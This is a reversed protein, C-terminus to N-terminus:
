WKSVAPKNILLLPPSCHLSQWFPGWWALRVLTCHPCWIGHSKNVESAVTLWLATFTKWLYLSHIKAPAAGTRTGHLCWVGWEKGGLSLTSSMQVGLLKVAGPLKAACSKIFLRKLGPLNGVPKEPARCSAACVWHAVWLPGAWRQNGEKLLLMSINRCNRHYPHMIGIGM